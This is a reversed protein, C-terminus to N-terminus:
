KYNSFQANWFHVHLICTGCCHDFGERWGEQWHVEPDESWALPGAAAAPANSVNHLHNKILYKILLQTCDTGKPMYTQLRGELDVLGQYFTLGVLPKNLLLALFNRTTIHHRLIVKNSADEPPPLFIEHRVPAESASNDIEPFSSLSRTSGNGIALNKLGRLSSINIPPRSSSLKATRQGQQLKSLLYESKADELM